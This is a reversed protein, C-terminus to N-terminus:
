NAPWPPSPPLGRPDFVSEVVDATLLYWDLLISQMEQAVAAYREQGYVNTLERPDQSLDYLERVGLGSARYILKYPANRMVVFRHHDDKGLHEEQGRPYYIEKPQTWTSRQTPDNYELENLYYYGAEAFVFSHRDPNPHNLIQPLLSKGFHVYMKDPDNVVSTLNAIDM